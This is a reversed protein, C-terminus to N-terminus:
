GGHSPPEEEDGPGDRGGAWCDTIDLALSGIQLKRGVTSKSLNGDSTFAVNQDSVHGDFMRNAAFSYVNDGDADHLRNGHLTLLVAGDSARRLNKGDVYCLVNGDNDVLDGGALENRIVFGDETAESACGDKIDWIICDPNDTNEGEHLIIDPNKNSISDRFDTEQDGDLACAGLLLAPVLLATLRTM